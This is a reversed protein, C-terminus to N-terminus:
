RRLRGRRLAIETVWLALALSLFWIWLGASSTTREAPAEALAPTLEERITGGTIDAIQALLAQGSEPNALLRYEAPVPQVYGIERVERTGDYQLAVSLVYAGPLGLALDQSYRGPASQRIDFSRQSGDPLIVRANVTALDLPEGGPLVADVVLRSGGPRQEVAVQIPGSDPEPLTYRVMQAWFREFGEWTRWESAWPTGVTPTWAVARGLGYQWVALLPDAEPAELVVEATERATTAVYGNLDPLEAPAFDRLMPHPQGLNARMLGEVAPDARALESELLTLRPIDEPRNAFYYRGGGLRALQNLLMADADDGIAITSLTIDNARATEMLREYNAPNNTFSRGDTLLVAHRVGTPQVALAPLGTALSLEIDTGGGIPLNLIAQQIQSRNTTEGVTQFDVVWFTGTDFSLIGIRDEPGLSETALIAAEKAMDFKSVGFASSMSASRDVILLLAIEGRQPRPPPDMQVPLVEELPTGKYEGLTFSTRGGVAVLGKGESRVFERINAMQELSLAAAPVDILIMGDFAMLDALRTPVELPSIRQTVLAQRGLADTLLLAEDASNAIVLVAPPENVVAITSGRNNADFSDGEGLDLEARLRMVGPTTAEHRFTFSEDGAFLTVTEDGLLIEDQWLRLQGTVSATPGATGPHYRTNITIPFEEGVRLRAPASLDIIAADPQRLPALPVVDVSVGAEAAMQAERLPDAGTALGDSLVLVKGGGPLLARAAQLGAALDSGSGDPLVPEDQASRPGSVVNAGVYLVRAQDGGERALTEAQARLTARLEAPLSDSQDVLVVLPGPPAPPTGFVPDALAVILSALIALRLVLIVPRMRRQQRWWFLVVLPLLLLLSLLLPNRLFM